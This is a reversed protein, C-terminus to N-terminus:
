DTHEINGQPRASTPLHPALNAQPGSAWVLNFGAAFIASTCSSGGPGVLWCGPAGQVPVLWSVALVVGVM